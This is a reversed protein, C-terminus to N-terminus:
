GASMGKPIDALRTWIGTWRGERFDPAFCFGDQLIHRQSIGAANMVTNEGSFMYFKGNYAGCVPFIREPGPWAPLATWGAQPQNLDLVYCTQVPASGPSIMGGAIMLLH